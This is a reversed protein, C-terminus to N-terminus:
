PKPVLRLKAAPQKPESEIRRQEIREAAQLLGRLIDEDLRSYIDSIECLMHQVNVSPPRSMQARNEVRSLRQRRDM